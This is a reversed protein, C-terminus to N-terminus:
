PKKKLVRKKWKIVMKQLHAMEVLTPDDKSIVGIRGSYPRKRQHFWDVLTSGNRDAFGFRSM